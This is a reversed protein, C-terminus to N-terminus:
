FGNFNKVSLEMKSAHHLGSDAKSLIRKQKKSSM